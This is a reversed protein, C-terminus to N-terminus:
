PLLSRMQHVAQFLGVSLARSVIAYGINLEEVQPIRAVASVNEYNLGHGAAVRIGLRHAFRAAEKLRQLTRRHATETTANAYAGTHLEIFRAGVKECARLQRVAPDVFLSVCIGEKELTELTRQVRKPQSAVDLGGETTLEQRREPVLTAMRPKLRRAIRVIQPDLSMELDLYTRLSRLLRRVDEEQIHRRDERLHCVVHDAGAGECVFAAEVPDPSSRDRRVQRLTAIHDINVGLRVRRKM